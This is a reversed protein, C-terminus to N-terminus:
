MCLKGDIAELTRGKTEPYFFYIVPIFLANAVSFILFTAWGINATMIPTVEVVLFNFLRTPHSFILKSHCRCSSAAIVYWNAM